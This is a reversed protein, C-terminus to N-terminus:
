IKKNELIVKDLNIIEGTDNNYLINNDYDYQINKKEKKNYKSILIAIRKKLKQEDTFHYNIGDICPKMADIYSFYLENLRSLKFFSPYEPLYVDEKRIKAMKVYYEKVKKAFGIDQYCLKMAKKVEDNLKEQHIAISYQEELGLLISFHNNIIKLYENDLLIEKQTQKDLINFDDLIFGYEEKVEKTWNKKNDKNNKVINRLDELYVNNRDKRNGYYKSIIDECSGCIFYGDFKAGKMNSIVLQEGCIPCHTHSLKEKKNNNIISDKFKKWHENKEVGDYKHNLVQSKNNIMSVIILIIDVIWGICFIGFTLLYLVGMAYKKNIFHHLGFWGGFICILLQKIKENNNNNNNNM